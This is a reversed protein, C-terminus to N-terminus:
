IVTVEKTQLLRNMATIHRQTVYWKKKDPDFKAAHYKKILHIFSENYDFELKYLVNAEEEVLQFEIVDEGKLFAKYAGPSLEEEAIRPLNSLCYSILSEVDSQAECKFEWCSLEKKWTGNLNALKNAEIDYPFSLYFHSNSKDITILPQNEQSVDSAHSCETLIQKKRKAEIKMKRPYLRNIFDILSLNNKATVPLMWGEKSECFFGGFERMKNNIYDSFEAKILFHAKGDIKEYTVFFDGHEGKRILRTM